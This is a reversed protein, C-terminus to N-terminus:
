VAAALGAQLLALPGACSLILAGSVLFRSPDSFAQLRSGTSAALFGLQSGALPMFVLSRRVGRVGSRLGAGAFESALM